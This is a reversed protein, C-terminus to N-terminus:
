VSKRHRPRPENPGAVVQLSVRDVYYLSPDEWANGLATTYGRSKEQRLRRYGRRTNVLGIALLVFAAALIVAAWFYWRGPLYAEAVLLWGVLVAAAEYQLGRVILTAGSPGPLIDPSPVTSMTM